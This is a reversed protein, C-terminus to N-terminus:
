KKKGPRIPSTSVVQIPPKELSEAFDSLWQLDLVLQVVDKMPLVGIEAKMLSGIFKKLRPADQKNM